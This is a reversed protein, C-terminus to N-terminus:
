MYDKVLPGLKNELPHPALRFEVMKQHQGGSAVHEAHACWRGLSITDVCVLLESMYSQQSPLPPAHVQSM